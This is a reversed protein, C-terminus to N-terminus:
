HQTMLKVSFRLMAVTMKKAHGEIWGGVMESFPRDIWDALLLDFEKWTVAYPEEALNMQRRLSRTDLDLWSGTESCLSRMAAEVKEREKNELEVHERAVIEDVHTKVVDALKERSENGFLKVTVISEWFGDSSLLPYALRPFRIKILNAALITRWHLESNYYREIQPKLLALIRIFQRVARPNAPLLPIMEKIAPESVYPFYDVSDALALKSLNDISPIPLWRPYDIIKELFKLGDDFGPHKSKLIEGVITPDFACVFSVGPIDMVEKFAFLLEPVISPSTRDLDDVLILIRTGRISGLLKELDRRTYACYDKLLDIGALAMSVPKQDAAEKIKDKRRSFFRMVTSAPKKWKQLDYKVWGPLTSKLEDELAAVFSHWLARSDSFQWPTFRLVVQNNARAIGEVFELVSTKGSGWEGYIGVRISWEAPGTTAIGYIEQALPWRGLHDRERSSVAADPGRTQSSSIPKM